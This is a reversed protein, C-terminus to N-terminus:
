ALDKRFLLSRRGLCDRGFLLIRHIGDYFVFSFPGSINGIMETAPWMAECQRESSIPIGHVIKLLIKFVLEADNGQVTQNNVRWAEGNWCLVSGTVDDILPQSTVHEGRLSLVSSTVSLHLTLHSHELDVIVEHRKFEDPGRNKLWEETIIDPPKFGDRSISFHIGCM